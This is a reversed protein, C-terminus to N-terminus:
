TKSFLLRGSSHLLTCCRGTLWHHIHAVISQPSVFAMLRRIIEDEYSGDCDPLYFDLSLLAPAKLEHIMYRIFGRGNGNGLVLSRLHTRTPIAPRVETGEDCNYRLHSLILRELRDSSGLIDAWHNPHDEEVIGTLRLTVLKDVALYLAEPQTHRLILHRLASGTEPREGFSAVMHSYGAMHSVLKLSELSKLDMSRTLRDLFQQPIPHGSSRLSLSRWRLSHLLLDGEGFIDGFRALEWREPLIRDTTLSFDLPRTGSRELWLARQEPNWELRIRAWLQTLSIAVARWLRSVQEM